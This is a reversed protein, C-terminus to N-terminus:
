GISDKLFAMMRTWADRTAEPRWADTHTPNAFAHGAGPYVHVSVKRGAQRMAEEFARVDAVRVSQDDEGFFGIVPATLKKLLEQDTELRGYYIVCAAVRPEALALRLSYGGGFCWGLSGIKGIFKRGSLFEFAEKTDEVGQSSDLGMALSKATGPDTAVKGRFLDVALAAYGSRALEAAASKVQDNLGWWEHVVILGPFPGKGPPVALFGSLRAAGGFVITETQVEAM